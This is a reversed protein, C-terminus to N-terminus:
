FRDFYLNIFIISITFESSEGQHDPDADNETQDATKSAKRTRKRPPSKEEKEEATEKNDKSRRTSVM